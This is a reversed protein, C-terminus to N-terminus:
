LPIYRRISAIVLEFDDFEASRYPKLKLKEKYLMEFQKVLYQSIAQTVFNRETVVLVCSVERGTATLINKDGFSIQDIGKESKIALRLSINLASFFGGVLQWDQLGYDDDEYIFSRSFIVLDTKHDIIIVAELSAPTLFFIAPDKKIIYNLYLGGILLPIFYSYGPLPLTFITDLTILIIFSIMIASLIVSSRVTVVTGLKEKAIKSVNILRQVASFVILIASISFFLFGLPDFNLKIYDTIKLTFTTGNILASGTNSASILFILVISSYKFQFDPLIFSFSITLICLQAFVFGIRFITVTLPNLTHPTNLLATLVMGAFFILSIFSALTLLKM